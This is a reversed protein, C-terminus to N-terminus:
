ARAKPAIDAVLTAALSLSAEYLPDRVPRLLVRELLTGDDLIHSRVCQNPFPVGPREGEWCIVFPNEEQRKVAYCGPGAHLEVSLLSGDVVGEIQDAFGLLETDLEVGDSGVFRERPVPGEVDM